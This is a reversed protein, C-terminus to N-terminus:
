LSISKKREWAKYLRDKYRKELIPKLEWYMEMVKNRSEELKRKMIFKFREQPDLKAKKQVEFRLIEQAISKKSV